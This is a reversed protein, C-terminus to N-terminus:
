CLLFLSYRAGKILPTVGHVISNDHITISGARRCPAELRLTQENVFVLRGGEYESEHNLPVQLTKRHTDTHLKIYTHGSPLVRRLKIANIAHSEGFAAVLERTSAAGVPGQLQPLTLDVIVFAPASCLDVRRRVYRWYM